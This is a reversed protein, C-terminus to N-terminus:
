EKKTETEVDNNNEPDDKNAGEDGEDRERDEEEEAMTEVDEEVEVEEEEDNNAAELARVMERIDEYLEDGEKSGDDVEPVNTQSRRRNNIWLDVMTRVEKVNSGLLSCAAVTRRVTEEDPGEEVVAERAYQRRARKKMASTPDSARLLLAYFTERVVRDVVDATPLHADVVADDNTTAPRRRSPVTPDDARVPRGGFVRALAGRTRRKVRRRLVGPPPRNLYLAALKAPELRRLRRAGRVVESPDDRTTTLADQRGDDVDRLGELGEVLTGLVGNVTATDVVCSLGTRRDVVARSAYVAAKVRNLAAYYAADGDDASLEPTLGRMMADVAVTALESDRLEFKWCRRLDKLANYVVRADRLRGPRVSRCLSEFDVKSVLSGGAGKRQLVSLAQGPTFEDGLAERLANRSSFPPLPPIPPSPTTPLSSSSLTEVAEAPKTSLARLSIQVM